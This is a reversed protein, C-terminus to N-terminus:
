SSPCKLRLKPNLNSWSSIPFLKLL